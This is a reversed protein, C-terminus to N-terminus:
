PLAYGLSKPQIAQWHVALKRLAKVEIQRVRERSLNFQRGVEELTRSSGDGLGFRLRLMEQERESLSKLAKDLQEKLINLGTATAPSLARKDEICDGFRMDEGEGIPMQLSIPEQAVKLILRVKEIPIGTSRAIDEPSPERGTKQVISRSVRVLKNITETMHVPIRITRGQDAIARTIAQRVWWTAYTSFKYGRQYEFKEVARMLGINGEQILDLFSVGRNRYKKAISVVLRLNAEVLVKKSQIYAASRERIEKLAVRQLSIRHALAAQQRSGTGRGASRNSQASRREVAETTRLSKKLQDVIWDIARTTLYFELVLQGLKAPVRTERVRRRLKVLKAILDERRFNPDDKIFEEPPRKGQILTDLLHLLEQRAAPVRFVAERYALEDAEIRKAVQLEQAPTLLPIQGMQQLYTKIPDDLQKAEEELFQEEEDTQNADDEEPEAAHAAEAEGSFAGNASKEEDVKNILLASLQGREEPSFPETATAEDFEQDVVPHDPRRGISMFQALREGLPKSRALPM